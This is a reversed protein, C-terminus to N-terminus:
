NPPISTHRTVVKGILPTNSAMTNLKQSFHVLFIFVILAVVSNLLIRQVSQFPVWFSGLILIIVGIAPFTVVARYLQTRRHITLRYSILKNNEHKEERSQIDVLKWEHNEISLSQASSDDLLVFEVNSSWSMLHLDCKQEDFPWYYFDLGCFVKFLAPPRWLVEGNSKVRLNSRSIYDVNESTGNLLIMRPKWIDEHDVLVESM